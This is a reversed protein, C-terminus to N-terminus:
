EPSDLLLRDIKLTRQASQGMYGSVDIVLMADIAEPELKGSPDKGGEPQFQLESWKFTRTQWKGAPWPFQVAYRAGSKESVLLGLTTSDSAMASVTITRSGAPVGPAPVLLLAGKGPKLQYDWVLAEGGAAGEVGSSLKVALNGEIGQASALSVEVGQAQASDSSAPLPPGSRQPVRGVDLNMSGDAVREAFVFYLERQGGVTAITPEGAAIIEGAGSSRADGALVVEPTTWAAGSSMDGGKYRSKLLSMERRFYLTEGDFFPQSEEANPTSVPAPIKHEPGWKGDLWGKDTAAYFLDDRVNEDDFFLVHGGDARTWGEPNAAHEKSSRGVLVSTSAGDVLKGKEAHTSGLAHGERPDLRVAFLDGHTDDDGGDSPTDFAYLMVLQDPGDNILAPGYPTICANVGDWYIPHPEGFSGDAQRRFLFQSTPPVPMPLSKLGLSPCGNTLQGLKDLREIGPMGPRQPGGMPGIATRCFKGDPKGEIMCNFAVPFYQVALWQGDASIAAGDEWAPTNVLGRLPEPQNWADDVSGLVLATRTTEAHRAPIAVTVELRGTKGPDIRAVLRGDRARLPGLKGRSLKVTVDGPSLDAAPLSVEFSRSGALREFAIDLEAAVAAQAVLGVVVAGMWRSGLRRKRGGLARSMGSVAPATSWTHSVLM